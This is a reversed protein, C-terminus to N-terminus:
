TLALCREEQWTEQEELLSDAPMRARGSEGQCPGENNYYNCRTDLCNMVQGRRNPYFPDNHSGTLKALSTIPHFLLFIISRM